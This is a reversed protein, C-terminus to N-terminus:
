VIEAGPIFALAPSKSTRTRTSIRPAGNGDGGERRALARERPHPHGGTRMNKKRNASPIFPIILPDLGPGGGTGGQGGNGKWLVM